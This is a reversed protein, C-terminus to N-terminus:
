NGLDAAGVSAAAVALVSDAADVSLAVTLTAAPLGPATATVVLATPPPGGGQLITACRDGGDADLNVAALLARDAPPGAAVLAARVVARALGHYTPVAAPLRPLTPSCLCASIVPM